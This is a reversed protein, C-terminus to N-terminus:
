KRMGLYSKIPKRNLVLHVCGAAIFLYGAWEHATKPYFAAQRTTRPAGAVSNDGAETSQIVAPKERAGGSHPLSLQVGTVALVLFAFTLLLSTIKRM